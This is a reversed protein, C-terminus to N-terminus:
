VSIAFALQEATLSGFSLKSKSGPTGLALWMAAHAWGSPTWESQNKLRRYLDDFNVQVITGEWNPRMRNLQEKSINVGLFAIQIFDIGYEDILAIPTSSPVTIAVGTEEQLEREICERVGGIDGRETLGEPMFGGGITHLTQPFADSKESRRHLVLCKAEESFLLASASLMVVRNGSDRKARIEAYMAPSFHLSIPKDKWNVAGDITACADNPKKECLLEHEIKKINQKELESLLIREGRILKPDYFIPVGRIKFGRETESQNHVNELVASLASNHTLEKNQMDILAKEKSSSRYKDAFFWAASIGGLITALALIAEMEYTRKKFKPSGVTRATSGNPCGKRGVPTWSGPQSKAKKATPKDPKTLHTPRVRSPEGPAVSSGLAFRFLDM